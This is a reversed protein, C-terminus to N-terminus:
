TARRTLHWAECGPCRYARVPLNERRPAKLALEILRRMAEAESGFAVKHCRAELVSGSM